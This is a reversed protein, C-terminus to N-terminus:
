LVSIPNEEIITCTSKKKLALAQVYLRKKLNTSIHFLTEGPSSM